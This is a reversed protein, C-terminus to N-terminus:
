RGRTTRARAQADEGLHVDHWSRARVTEVPAWHSPAFMDMSVSAYGSQGGAGGAPADPEDALLPTWLYDRASHIM